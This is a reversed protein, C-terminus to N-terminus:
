SAGDGRDFLHVILTDSPVGTASLGDDTSADVQDLGVFM